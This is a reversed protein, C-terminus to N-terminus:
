RHAIQGNQPQLLATAVHVLTWTCWRGAPIGRFKNKTYIPESNTARRQTCHKTESVYSKSFLFATVGTNAFSPFAAKRHNIPIRPFYLMQEIQSTHSLTAKVTFTVVLAFHGKRQQTGVHM